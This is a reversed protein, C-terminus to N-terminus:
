CAIPRVLAIESDVGKNSRQQILRDVYVTSLSGDWGEGTRLRVPYPAAYLYYIREEGGRDTQLQWVPSTPIKDGALGDEEGRYDKEEELDANYQYRDIRHLFL